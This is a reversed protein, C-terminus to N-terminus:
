LMANVILTRAFTLAKFVQTLNILVQGQLTVTVKGNGNDHAIGESDVYDNIRNVAM